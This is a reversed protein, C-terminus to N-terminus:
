GGMVEVLKSIVTATGEGGPNKEIINGWWNTPIKEEMNYVSLWLQVIDVYVLYFWEM